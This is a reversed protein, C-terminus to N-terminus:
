AIWDMLKIPKETNTNGGYCGVKGWEFSPFYPIQLTQTRRRDLMGRQIICYKASFTESPMLECRMVRQINFLILSDYVKVNHFCKHLMVKSFMLPFYKEFAFRLSNSAAFASCAVVRIGREHFLNAPSKKKRSVRAAIRPGSYGSCKLRNWCLSLSLFLSAFWHGSVKGLKYTIYMDFSCM